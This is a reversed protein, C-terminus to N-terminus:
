SEFSFSFFLLFLGFGRIPRMERLEAWEGGKGSRPRRVERARASVYPGSALRGGERWARQWRPGVQCGHLGAHGCVLKRGLWKPGSSPRGRASQRTPGMQWGEGGGRWGFVLESAAMSPARPQSDEPGTVVQAAQRHLVGPTVTVLVQAHCWLCQCQMHKICRSNM